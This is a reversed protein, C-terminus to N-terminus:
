SEPVPDIDAGTQNFPITVPYEIGSHDEISLPFEDQQVPLEVLKDDTVVAILLAIPEVDTV